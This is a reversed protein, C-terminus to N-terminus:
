KEFIKIYRRKRWHGHMIIILDNGKDSTIEGKIPMCLFNLKVVMVDSVLNYRFDYKSRM